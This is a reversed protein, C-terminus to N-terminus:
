EGRKGVVKKELRMSKVVLFKINEMDRFDIKQIEETSRCLVLRFVTFSWM